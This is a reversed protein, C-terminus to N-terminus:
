ASRRAEALRTERSPKAAAPVQPTEQEFLAVGDRGAAKARYMAIDAFKLLDDPGSNSGDFVVVGISASSPHLYDDARFPARLAALVRNAVVIGARAGDAYNGGAEEVVVVFEDGGLRAVMGNEGACRRLRAAVEKLYADGADHGCTDNLAKFNDLDIFLMAGARGSEACRRAATSLRKMFLRRNPLETLPDYYALREIAMENQKRLSIDSMYGYFTVSSGSREPTATHRVWRQKGDPQLMRFEMDWPQLSTRSSKITGVFLRRDEDHIMGAFGTPDAVMSEISRGTIRTIGHSLFNITTAGEDDLTFQFLAGPVESTLKRFQEEFKLRNITETVERVSGEYYLPRGTAGDRVLRASETIWIRERTKHRYIESVFDTVVGDRRLIERFQERRRPEVYWERGIDRVTGLMEEESEYGNLRVLARNASLQRGDLSSRYIGESLNEILERNNALEETVAKHRDRLRLLAVSVAFGLLLSVLILWESWPAAYEASIALGQM